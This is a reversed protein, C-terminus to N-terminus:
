KKFRSFVKTNAIRYVPQGRRAKIITEEGKLSNKVNDVEVRAKGGSYTSIDGNNNKMDIVKEIDVNAEYQIYCNKYSFLPLTNGPSKVTVPSEWMFGASNLASSTIPKLTINCNNFYFQDMRNNATAVYGRSANVVNCNNINIRVAVSVSSVQFGVANNLSNCNEFRYSAYDGKIVKGVNKGTTAVFGYHKNKEAVCAITTINGSNEYWFGANYERGGYLVSGDHGNSARCNDFLINSSNNETVFGIRTYDDAKCNRVQVSSCGNFYYGDGFNGNSNIASCYNIQINSSAELRLGSQPSNRFICNQIQINRSGYVFLPTGGDIVERKTTVKVSGDFTINNLSLNNQNRILCFDFKSLKQQAKRKIVTGNEGSLNCLITISSVLYTGKPLYVSASRVKAANIAEQVAKTDDSLGNGKAGYDKINIIRTQSFINTVIFFVLYVVFLIRVMSNKLNLKVIM